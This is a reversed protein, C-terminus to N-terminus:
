LWCALCTFMFITLSIYGNMNFFAMDLKELKGDRILWHEWFLLCTGVLLGLAFWYNLGSWYYFLLWMLVTIAHFVRAILLSGQIGFRAPISFLGTQRDFELDQLAYLVDFGAIWFLVSTGLTLAAVSIKGTVAIWAAVPAAGIAIGLFLHSYNTFRKTFSYFATLFIAVPSLYFALPNLQASAIVLVSYSGGTMMLIALPNIAGTVSPRKSTRPNEADFKRDLWRNFGMAGSRAGAMAVIVWFVQPLTPSGHTATLVAVLAFPLAFVTHSFKILELYHQLTKIM